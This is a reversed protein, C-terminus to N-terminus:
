SFVVVDKGGVSGGNTSITNEIFYNKGNQPERVPSNMYEMAM